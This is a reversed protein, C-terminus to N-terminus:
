SNKPQRRYEILDAVTGVRIQHKRGYEILDPLRAMTGDENIIECIVAAPKLGALGALDCGAETHGARGLVGDPHARLPFIHGPSVVSSPGADDAIAVQVTRARDHASIGTTVGESAEISVTFNTGFGSQNRKTMLPLELRDCQEPRLSLCVLGRAHTIMFNIVEPTVFEAAILLDGENERDPADVLIVMRGKRIDEIIHEPSALADSFSENQNPAPNTSNDQLM